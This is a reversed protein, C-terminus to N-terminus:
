WKVQATFLLADNKTKDSAKPAAVAYNYATKDQEWNLVFEVNKNMDWFLGAITTKKEDIKYEDYTFDDYRALLGFGDMSESFEGFRLEGNVSWGKGAYKEAANNSKLYQAAVLFMPQNYVAHVGYWKFDESEGSIANVGGKKGYAMNYQGFFSVDAYADHKHVHKKGTGLIHGTLRWELSLSNGESDYGGTDFTGHYGEGNYAGLESSFYETKTKFNIGIDASNSWDAGHKAEVFTKQIDRYWWGHHEEYDIWPRHAQGFEVGTNPLVNDLYLYAYKLRVEWDGTNGFKIDSDDKVSNHVQHTDLTIRMYSKPDEFLYAKVQFYNRRTEFYSSSSDSGDMYDANNSVFGLYSVGSFKLKSTKAFVPTAKKYKEALEKTEKDQKELKAIKANMQAMNAKLTKIESSNSANAGTVALASIAVFSLLTKKM